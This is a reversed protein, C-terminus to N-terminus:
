PPIVPFCKMRINQKIIFYPHKATENGKEDKDTIVKMSAYVKNNKSENSFASM